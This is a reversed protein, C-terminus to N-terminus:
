DLNQRLLVKWRRQRHRYFVQAFLWVAPTLWGAQIEIQDTYSVLGPAMEQFSITHNWVRAVLGSEHSTITNKDKDIEVLRITHRGLPVVGLLYLKLLYAPGVRWEPPLGGQEAPVFRLIPSAVFQLSRPDVLEQWLEAESCVLRTSIRAIM